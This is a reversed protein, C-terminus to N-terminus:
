IQDDNVLFWVEYVHAGNPATAPLYTGQMDDTSATSAAVLTGTVVVAGDVQEKVAAGVGAVGDRAPLGFVNGTGASIAIGTADAVSTVTVADVQGFAKKGTFVGAGALTWAEQIQRNFEDRGYIFGSIAVAGTATVIVNRPVDMAGSSSAGAFLSGSILSGDPTQVPTRGVKTLTLTAANLGAVANAFAIASGAAPATWKRYALFAQSSRQSKPWNKGPRATFQGELYEAPLPM